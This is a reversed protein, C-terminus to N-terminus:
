GRRRRRARRVLAATGVLAVTAGVAAGAAADRRGLRHGGIALSGSSEAMAARLAAENDYAPRWGGEALRRADVVWPHVLYQLDSSAAPTVGLRHLREATGFAVSAPLEIHRKGTIREVDARELWGDSGVAAVVLGPTEAAEADATLGVTVVLELASILDDAHCFQWRTRSGKVALLRPAEFHRTLITDVGGGVLAAPRLVTVLLGPHTRPAQAALREIELLDGLLDSDAAAQLEADESLPVPNDVQAGYVMASTVLVVHKVGAAPAATLVTAAARVTSAHYEPNDHDLASDVALHVVVDVGSLRDALGPHRVDVLRWTAEAVDGRITDIAIVKKVADSSALRRVLLEGLGHAAGTVAVVPRGRKAPVPAPARETTTGEATTAEATPSKGAASKATASKATASKGGASKAAASKAAAAKRPTGKGTATKAATSAADPLEVSADGAARVDSKGSTTRRRPRVSPEDNSM